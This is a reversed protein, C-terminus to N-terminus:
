QLLIANAGVQLTDLAVFELEQSSGLLDPSPEKKFLHCHQALISVAREVRAESGNPHDKASVPAVCDRYPVRVGRKSKAENFDFKLAPAQGGPGGGDGHWLSAVTLGLEHSSGQLSEHLRRIGLVDVEIIFTEERLGTGGLPGSSGRLGTPTELLSRGPASADQLRSFLAALLLRPKERFVASIGGSLDPDFELVHGSDLMYWHAKHATNLNIPELGHDLDHQWWECNKVVALGFPAEGNGQGVVSVEVLVPPPPEVYLSEPEPPRVAREILRVPLALRRSQSLRPDFEAGVDVESSEARVRYRKQLLSGEEPLLGAAQLASCNSPPFLSGGALLDVHCFFIGWDQPETLDAVKESAPGQELDLRGGATASPPAEGAGGGPSCCLAALVGGRRHHRPPRVPGLGDQQASQVGEPPVGLRPLLRQRELATDEESHRCEEIGVPVPGSLGHEMELRTIHYRPKARWEKPPDAYHGVGFWPSSYLGSETGFCCKRLAQDSYASFSVLHEGGPVDWLSSIGIAHGFTSVGHGLEHEFSIGQIIDDDVFVTVRVVKGREFWAAGLLCGAFHTSIFPAPTPTELSQDYRLDKWKAEHPSSKLRYRGFVASWPRTAQDERVIHIYAYRVCPPVYLPPTRKQVWWRDGGSNDDTSKFRLVGADDVKGQFLLIANGEEHFGKCGAVRVFVKVSHGRLGDIYLGRHLRVCLQVVFYADRVHRKVRDLDPPLSAAHVALTGRYASPAMMNRSMLLCKFPFTSGVSGGFCHRWYVINHPVLKRIETECVLVDETSLGSKVQNWLQLRLHQENKPASIHVDELWFEVLGSDSSVLHCSTIIVNESVSQGLLVRLVPRVNWPSEGFLFQDGHITLYIDQTHHERSDIFGISTNKGTYEVDYRDLSQHPRRTFVDVSMQVQGVARSSGKEVLIANFWELGELECHQLLWDLREEWSGVEAVRSEGSEDTTEQVVKLRIHYGPLYATRERLQMCAPHWFAYSAEADSEARDVDHWVYRVLGGAGALPGKQFVPESFAAEWWGREEDDGHEDSSERHTGAVENGDRRFIIAMDVRIKVEEGTDASGSVMLSRVRSDVCVMQREEHGGDMSLEAVSMLNIRRGHLPDLVEPHTEPDTVQWVVLIQAIKCPDVHSRNVTGLVPHSLTLNKVTPWVPPRVPLKIEVGGLDTRLGLLARGDEAWSYGDSQTVTVQVRPPLGSSAFELSHELCFEWVPNESRPARESDFVVANAGEGITVKVRTGCPHGKSSLINRGSHVCMRVHLPILKSTGEVDDLDELFNDELHSCLGRIGHERFHRASRRVSASINTVGQGVLAGGAAAVTQPSHAALTAAVSATGAAM